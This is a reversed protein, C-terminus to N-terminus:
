ATMHDHSPFLVRLSGPIRRRAVLHGRELKVHEDVGEENELHLSLDVYLSLSLSLSLSLFIKM